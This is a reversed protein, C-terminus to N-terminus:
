SGYPFLYTHAPKNLAEYRVEISHGSDYSSAVDGQAHGTIYDNLEKSVGKDRLMDKLNGRLSHSVQGKDPKIKAIQRGLAQSAARSAKGDKDRSYNFLRGDPSSILGDVTIQHGLPPLISQLKDPIPLLRKSGANKVIAKTLDIYNWGSDHRIINEWTLLAAEDMRCGTTILFGFLLYERRNMRGKGDVDALGFLQHLQPEKFPIFSQAEHGYKSLHLKNFPNSVFGELESQKICWTFLGSVYSINSKISKNALDLEDELYKAFTYGHKQTIICVDVNGVCSMFRELASLASSKTKIRKWKTEAIYRKILASLSLVSSNTGSLKQALKKDLDTAFKKSVNPTRDYHLEAAKDFPSPEHIMPRNVLWFEAEEDVLDILKDPVEVGVSHFLSIVDDAEPWGFEEIPQFNDLLKSRYGKLNKDEREAWMTEAQQMFVEFKSQSTDLEALKDDFWQYIKAAVVWKREEAVKADSTGSSLKKDRDTNKWLNKPKTVAWHIKGKCNVPRPDNYKIWHNQWGTPVTRPANTPANKLM